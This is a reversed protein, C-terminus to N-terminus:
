AQFVKLLHDIEGEIEEDSSVTHAIHQELLARYRKRMRHITVRVAGESLSLAAAAESLPADAANWALHDKLAAFVKGKGKETWEKELENLVQNLLNTSWSREFAQDPSAETSEPEAAFRGEAEDVDISVM